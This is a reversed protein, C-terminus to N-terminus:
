RRRARSKASIRSLVSNARAEGDRSGKTLSATASAIVSQLIKRYSEFENVVQMMGPFPIRPVVHNEYLDDFVHRRGAGSTTGVDIEKVSRSMVSICDRLWRRTDAWEQVDRSDCSLREDSSLDRNLSNLRSINTGLDKRLSAVRVELQVCSNWCAAIADLLQADEGSGSPAYMAQGGAPTPWAPQQVPVMWVTLDLNAGPTSPPSVAQDLLPSTGMMADYSQVGIAWAVIQQPDLGAAAVLFRVTLRPAIAPNSFLTPPLSFMLGNPAAMPRFWVWAVSQGTQDFAIPEWNVSPNRQALLM